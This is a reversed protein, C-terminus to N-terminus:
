LEFHPLDKFSSFNGGWNVDSDIEKIIEYFKKFLKPNWDLKKDFTLFAIDFATSPNTNHKSQGGKANTIKKINKQFEKTRNLLTKFKKWISVGSIALYNENISTAEIFLLTTTVIKTLIFPISTFLGIIDGLIFKEVAFAVIIASQYLVMKSIIKYFKRSTIPEKVKNARLIGFISDVFIAVGVIIILPIIPMLFAIIIGYISLFSKKISIALINIQETM